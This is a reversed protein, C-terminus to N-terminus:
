TGLNKRFLRQLVHLVYVNVFTSHFRKCKAGARSLLIFSTDTQIVKGVYLHVIKPTGKEAVGVLSGNRLYLIGLSFLERRRPFNKSRIRDFDLKSFKWSSYGYIENVLGSDDQADTKKNM